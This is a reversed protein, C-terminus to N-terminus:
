RYNRLGRKLGWVAWVAPLRELRLDRLVLGEARNM